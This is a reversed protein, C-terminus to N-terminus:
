LGILLGAISRIHVSRWTFCSRLSLVLRNSRCSSAASNLVAMSLGLAANSFCLKFSWKNRWMQCLRLRIQVENLSSSTSLTDCFVSINWRSPALEGSPPSRYIQILHKIQSHIEKLPLQHRWIIDTNWFVLIKTRKRCHRFWDVNVVNCIKLKYFRLCPSITLFTQTIEVEAAQYSYILWLVM